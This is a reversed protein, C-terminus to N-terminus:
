PEDSSIKTPLVGDGSLLANVMAMAMTNPYPVACSAQWRIAFDGVATVFSRFCPAVIGNKPGLQACAEEEESDPSIIITM